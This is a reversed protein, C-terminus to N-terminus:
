SGSTPASPRWPTMQRHSPLCLSYAEKTADPATPLLCHRYGSTGLRVSVAVPANRVRRGARGGASQHSGSVASGAPAGAKSHERYGAHDMAWRRPGTAEPLFPVHAMLEAPCQHYAPCQHFGLSEDMARAEASQDGSDQRILRYGDAATDLLRQCPLRGTGQGRFRGPVFLAKVQWSAEHLDRHAIGASIQAERMALLVTGAPPGDTQPLATLEAASGPPRGCGARVGPSRGYRARLWGWYQGSRAGFAEDDGGAAAVAIQDAM